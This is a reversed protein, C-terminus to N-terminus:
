AIEEVSAQMLHFRIEGKIILIGLHNQISKHCALLIKRVPISTLLLLKGDHMLRICDLLLKRSSDTGFVPHKMLQRLVQSLKDADRLIVAMRGTHILQGLEEAYVYTIRFEELEDASFYDSVDLTGPKGLLGLVQRFVQMHTNM